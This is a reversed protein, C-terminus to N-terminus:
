LTNWLLFPFLCSFSNLQFTDNRVIINSVRMLKTWILSIKYPTLPKPSKRRISCWSRGCHRRCHSERKAPCCTAMRTTFNVFTSSRRAESDAFPSRKITTWSGARRGMRASNQWRRPQVASDLFRFLLAAYILSLIVAIDVSFRRWFLFIYEISSVDDPGSDSDSSSSAAAAKTKPMKLYRNIPVSFYGNIISNIWNNKINTEIYSIDIFYLM